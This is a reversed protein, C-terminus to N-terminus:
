LGYCRGSGGERAPLCGSRRRKAASGPAPSPAPSATPAPPKAPSSSATPPSPKPSPPATPTTAPAPTPTPAPPTPTPAGAPSRPPPHSTASPTPASCTASNPAPSTKSPAPNQALSWAQDGGLFGMLHSRGLHWANFTMCGVQDALVTGPELGLRSTAPLAIKTLLGMPLAHIADRLPAPLPPAFRLTGAALVGTSVTVIAAAARITGRPTDLAVGPGHWDLRTAPTDLWAETAARRVLFAGLGAQPALNRGQLRNRRWDDRGLRAPDAAAIIPGEWLAILPAWPDPALTALADALTTDPTTPRELALTELRDWAADLAAQEPATPTRGAITVRERRPGDTDVLADDPHALAVLPNRDADHLWTAGHDFPDAGVLTTWARGGIRPAAEILTTPVGRARLRRAAALGAAGAGVVVVGAELHAPAARRAPSRPDDPSATM